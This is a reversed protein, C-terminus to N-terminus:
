LCAPDVACDPDLCDILGDGDDDLNDTCNTEYSCRLTGFCEEYAPWCSTDLCDSCAVSGPDALCVGLCVTSACAAAAGGCAACTDSVGVSDAICATACAADGICPPPGLICAQALALVDVGVLAQLDDSNTCAGDVAVAASCDPDACDARGDGDNDVNDFCNEVAATCGTADFTVALDYTNCTSGLVPDDYLYVRLYVAGDVTSTWTISEQNDRTQSIRINQGDSAVLAIDIDGLDHFFSAVTSLEGGACVPIRYWDDDNLVVVLDTLNADPVLRTAAAPRDNDEFADDQGCPVVGCVPHRACEADDCDTAGDGDNDIQDDCVEPVPGVCGTEDLAVELDYANCGAPDFMEVALYVDGDIDSNWGIRENDNGSISRRLENGDVDYLYLDIDGGAHSFRAFIDLRAGACVPIVFWDDDGDASVLGTVTAPAVLSSGTLMTDNQEYSDDRCALTCFPDAECDLDDCDTAGDGDNDITDDCVEVDVPNCAPQDACDPDECDVLGDGDDDIGDACGYEFDCHLLGFCATYGPWCRDNICTACAPSDPTAGCPGACSGFVCAALEGGCGACDGSVGTRDQICSTNCAVDPGCGQDVICTRGLAQVDIRGAIPLDHDNTCAGPTTVAASCDSDACDTRGDDDNDAGDFCDEVTVVCAPDDVCDPDACDTAGDGDNDITDDCVEPIPQPCGTADFTVGLGYPVCGSADPQTARLYVTGTVTSRWSVRRGNAVPGADRLVTGDARTVALNLASTAVDFTARASLLGGSCVQVAFWDEDGGASVLGTLNATPVVVTATAADDNDEFADDACPACVPDGACDPDACDVLGDEDDSEQNDCSYEFACQLTGFCDQYGPYCSAEICAACAPSTVDLCDGLCSAVVCGALEGGCTACGDSVGLIDQVCATNCAIDGLCGSDLICTQGIAIFDAAAALPLDAPNTCAGDVLITGSCDSDLCDAAGDGDNDVGDFCDEAGTQCAPFDVCDGDACDTAGDGDDDLENDCIEPPPPVCGATDVDFELDYPNCADMTYMQVVLYLTGDFPADWTFAESDSTGDSGALATGSGDVLYIDIDGQAHIFSAAASVVAGDCVDLVFVDVDGYVSVLGAFAAPLAAATATEPTDNDELDDDVCAPECAPDGECDADACDTAGDLDDDVQNDCVEPPPPSCPPVGTCDPDACDVLGDGDDDVGGDCGYEFDCHLVGFCEVYAPFCSTEICTACEASATDVCPVLCSSVVCAGLQGGCSACGDTLGTAAVICNTICAADGLCPTVGGLICAEGLTTIDLRGAIALDADNTCAGPTSVVGSCDSDACDARGDGDNDTRDFCDEAGGGCASDDLTISLGYANCGGEDYMEVRVYLTEEAGATYIIQEDDDSSISWVRADGNADELYLDLDGSAHSFTATATLVSGACLTVAFFDDDWYESTLDGYTADPTVATATEATDNEELADPDCTPQCGPDAACDAVDACDTLGDDDDDVGNDCVEGTPCQSADHVCGGTVADCSDVTCDVADDCDRADHVCGNPGCSDDTCADGDDCDRATGVCEGGACADGDTCADGDDCAAGDPAAVVDCGGSVANCVAVQCAGPAPCEIAAHGCEGTAAACTDITCPDGDDCDRPAGVCLGNACLDGVTCAAGDDCNTGNPADDHVCEGSAPDCSDATCPEGDDCGRAVHTCEGTAGDCADETCADGDDCGTPTHVCAGGAANCSDATCADGDDCSKAAGACAGAACRDGTTCADGDDCATGDARPRDQCAGTAPVCEARRCADTPVPCTVVTGASVVCAGGVCALTGNCLNGDEFDACDATTVCVCQNAGGTCAGAACAEGSTCANGDDCTTGADVDAAVCAGTDPQCTTKRCDTDDSTDCSVRTASDVRCTGEDCYLSGNCLDDDEYAACDADATCPCTDGPTGQCTGAQCADNATCPDGDNCVTGTLPEHVCGGAFPDCYDRTCANGDGCELDRAGTCTGQFCYSDGERTCLDGDDCSVYDKTPRNECEGRDTNCEAVRCPGLDGFVGQCDSDNECPPVVVESDARDGGDGGGSDLVGIDGSGTVSSSSCGVGVLVFALCCVGALSGLNWPLRNM